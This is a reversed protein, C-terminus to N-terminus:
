FWHDLVLVIVCRKNLPLEEKEGFTRPGLVESMGYDTVLKRALSTARRLDSTAGTTVEGFIEKETVHGAVLVAIEEAYETKTHMYRDETPLKITYGGAQGRAIISIKQVPDTHPLYHTVIAHGAEHYATIKKEKETLLRSKREPGLM